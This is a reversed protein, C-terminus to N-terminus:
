PEEALFVEIAEKLFEIIESHRHQRALDLANQGRKLILEDGSPCLLLIVSREVEPGALALGGRQLLAECVDLLGMSAALHLATINEQRGMVERHMTFNPHLAIALAARPLGYLLALHLLTAGEQPVEECFSRFSLGDVTEISSEELLRLAKAEDRAQIAHNLESRSVDHRSWEEAEVLEPSGLFFHEEAPVCQHVEVEQRPREEGLLLWLAETAEEVVRDRLLQHPRIPQKTLPSMPQRQLWEVIFKQEYVQGDPAFLPKSFIDHSLPCSLAQTLVQKARQASQLIPLFAGFQAIQEQFRGIQMAWDSDEGDLENSRAVFPLSAAEALKQGLAQLEALVSAYAATIPEPKKVAEQGEPVLSPLFTKVQGAIGQREDQERLFRCVLVNNLDEDASDVDAGSHDEFILSVKLHRRELDVSVLLCCVSHGIRLGRRVRRPASLLADKVSGVNIFVGHTCKSRVTGKMTMGVYLEELPVKTNTEKMHRPVRPPRDLRRPLERVEPDSYGSDLFSEEGRSTGAASSPTGRDDSSGPTGSATSSDGHVARAAQHFYENEKVVKVLTKSAIDGDSENGLESEWDAVRRESKVDPLGATSGSVGDSASRRSRAKVCLAEDQFYHAVAM